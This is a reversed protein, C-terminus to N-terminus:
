AGTTETDTKTPEVAPEAPSTKKSGKATASTALGQAILLDAVADAVVIDGAALDLEHTEGDIRIDVHVADIITIKAM